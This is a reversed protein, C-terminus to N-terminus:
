DDNDTAAAAATCNIHCLLTNGPLDMCPICSAPTMRHIRQQALSAAVPRTTRRNSPQRDTIAVTISQPWEGTTEIIIILRVSECNIDTIIRIAVTCSHTTLKVLGNYTM